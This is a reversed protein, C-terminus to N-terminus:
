IATLTTLQHNNFKVYVETYTDAWTNTPSRHIDVIRLPLTDTTAVSSSNLANKSKGYGGASVLTGATQVIAANAGLASRALSGDAQIWFLQNPDTLVKAYVSKGTTVSAPWCQSDVIRGSVDVYRCGLFIGYPTLTTTGTDKQIYGTTAMKVVDGYFISTTYGDAIEHEEFGANNYGWGLKAVPIMGFPFASASM